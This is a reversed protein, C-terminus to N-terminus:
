KVPQLRNILGTADEMVARGLNSGGSPTHRQRQQRTELWSPISEAGPM